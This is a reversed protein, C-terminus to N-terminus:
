LAHIKKTSLKLSTISHTIIKIGSNQTKETVPATIRCRIGGPNGPKLIRGVQPGDPYHTRAPNIRGKDQATENFARIADEGAASLETFTM